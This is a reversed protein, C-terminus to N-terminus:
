PEDLLDCKRMEGKMLKNFIATCYAVGTEVGSVQLSGTKVRRVSLINSLIGYNLYRRGIDPFFLRGPINQFPHRKKQRIYFKEKGQSKIGRYDAAVSLFRYRKSVDIGANRSKVNL